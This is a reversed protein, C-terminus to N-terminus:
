EHPNKEGGGQNEQRGRGAAALKEAAHRLALRSVVGSVKYRRAIQCVQPLQGTLMLTTLVERTHLANNIPEGIVQMVERENVVISMHDAMADVAMSTRLALDSEQAIQRDFAERDFEPSVVYADWDVGSQRQQAEYERATAQRIITFYHEPPQTTLREALKHNCRTMLEDNYQAQAEAQKQEREGDTLQPDDPIAPRAPLEVDVPDYSTLTSNPLMFYRVTFTYGGNDDLAAADIPDVEDCLPAVMPFALTRLTAASLFYTRAIDSVQANFQKEGMQAKVREIDDPNEPNADMARVLEARAADLAQEVDAKSATIVLTAYGNQATSFHIAPSGDNAAYDREVAEGVQPAPYDPENYLYDHLVKIADM